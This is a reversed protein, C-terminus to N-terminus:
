QESFVKHRSGLLEKGCSYGKLYNRASISYGSMGLQNMYKVFTKSIGNTRGYIGLLRNRKFNRSAQMITLGMLRMTKNVNRTMIM